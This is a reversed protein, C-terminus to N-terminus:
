FTSCTGIEIFNSIKENMVDAFEKIESTPRLLDNLTRQQFRLTKSNLTLTNGYGHCKIFGHSPGTCGFLQNGGMLSYVYTPKTNPMAIYPDDGDKINRVVFKTGSSSYSKSVWKDVVFDFGAASEGICLWQESASASVSLLCFILSLILKRLTKIWEFNGV